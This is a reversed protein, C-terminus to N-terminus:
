APTTIVLVGRAPAGLAEYSHDADATWTRSGGAVLPQPSDAPGVAARGETLYVHETVGPGHAPSVHRTGPTLTLVYVEVTAGDERHLTEVLRAAIGPAAVETGTREALLRALPVDLANALAYLTALTPNRRGAEIESLSGKGVGALAALRSLSYGRTARAARLQVGVETSLAQSGDVTRLM